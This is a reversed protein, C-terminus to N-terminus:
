NSKHATDIGYGRSHAGPFLLALVGLCAQLSFLLIIASKLLLGKWNWTMNPM